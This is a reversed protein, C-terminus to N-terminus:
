VRTGGTISRPGTNTSFGDELGNEKTKTWGANFHPPTASTPNTLPSETQFSAKPTSTAIPMVLVQKTNVEAAEAAESPQGRGETTEKRSKAKRPRVYLCQFFGYVLACVAANVAFFRFTDPAGLYSMLLGGFLSGSGKGVGFFLAGMMGVSLFLIQNAFSKINLAM